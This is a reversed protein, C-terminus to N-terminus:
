LIPKFGRNRAEDVTDPAFSQVLKREVLHDSEIRQSLKEFQETDDCDYVRMTDRTGVFRYSEFRSLRSM